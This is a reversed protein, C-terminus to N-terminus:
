RDSIIKYKTENEITGSIGKIKAYYLQESRMALNGQRDAHVPSRFLKVVDGICLENSNRPSDCARYLM